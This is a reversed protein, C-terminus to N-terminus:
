NNKKKRSDELLPKWHRALLELVEGAKWGNETKNIGVNDQQM